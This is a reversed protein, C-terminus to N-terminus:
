SEHHLGKKFAEVDAKIGNKLDPTHKAAKKLTRLGLLTLIGVIVLLVGAIVLFALWLPMITALGFGAALLLIGLLYLAFIAAGALLAVGVGTYALKAKVQLVALAIENRILYSFQATIKALLGTIGSSDKAEDHQTPM